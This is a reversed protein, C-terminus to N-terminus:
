WSNVLWGFEQRFLLRAKGDTRIPVGNLLGGGDPNLYLTVLRVGRNSYFICGWRYNKSPIHSVLISSDRFQALLKKRFQSPYFPAVSVEGWAIAEFNKESIGGEVFTTEPIYFVQLRFVRGSTALAIANQLEAQWDIAKPKPITKCGSLILCICAILSTLQKEILSSKKNM